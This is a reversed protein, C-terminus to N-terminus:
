NLPIINKDNIGFLENFKAPFRTKRKVFLEYVKLL